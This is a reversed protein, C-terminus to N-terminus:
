DKGTHICREPNSPLDITSTSTHRGSSPSSTNSPANSPRSPPVGTLLLTLEDKSLLLMNRSRGQDQRSEIATSKMSLFQAKSGGFSGEEGWKGERRTSTHLRRRLTSLTECISYMDYPIHRRSRRAPSLNQQSTEWRRDFSLDCPQLCSDFM